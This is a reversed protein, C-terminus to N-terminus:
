RGSQSGDCRQANRMPWDPPGVAGFRPETLWFFFEGVVGALALTFGSRRVNKNMVQLASM